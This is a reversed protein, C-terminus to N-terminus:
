GQNVLSKESGFWVRMSFPLPKDAPPIVRVTPVNKEGFAEKLYRAGLTVSVGIWKSAKKGHLMAIIRCNLKGVILRKTAGKFSLIPRNILRGKADKEKNPGVIETITVVIPGSSLIDDAKIFNGEFMERMSEDIAEAKATTEDVPESTTM